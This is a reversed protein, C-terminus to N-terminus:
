SRLITIKTKTAIVASYVNYKPCDPDFVDKLFFVIKDTSNWAAMKNVSKRLFM